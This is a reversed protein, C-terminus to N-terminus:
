LTVLAGDDNRGVVRDIIVHEKSRQVFLAAKHDKSRQVFLAAKHEKSRQVFLTAKHEKSRQVFLAAEHEKSWQMAPTAEGKNSREMRRFGLKLDTAALDQDFCFKAGPDLHLSPRTILWSKGAMRSSGSFQRTPQTRIAAVLEFPGGVSRSLWIQVLAKFKSESSRVFPWTEVILIVESIHRWFITGVSSKNGM